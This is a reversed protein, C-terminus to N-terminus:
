ESDTAAAFAAKKRLRESLEKELADTDVPATTGARRVTSTDDPTADARASTQMLAKLEDARELILRGQKAKSSEILFTGYSFLARILNPLEGMKELMAISEKFCQISSDLREKAEQSDDYLSNSLVKAKNLLGMAIALRNEIAYSMDLAAETYEIAKKQIGFKLEVQGLMLLSFAELRRIGTDRATQLGDLCLAYADDRLGEEMRHEAINLILLARSGRDGLEDALRLAREWLRLAEESEGNEYRTAGLGLLTLLQGRRDNEQERMGLAEQHLRVAARLNGSSFHVNALRTLTRAIGRPDDLNRRIRLAKELVLRADDYASPAGQHRIIRAKEDLTDAFGREDGIESFLKESYLVHRQSREYQGRSRLTTALLLHSRAVRFEDDLVTAYHIADQLLKEAEELEGIELYIAALNMLLNSALEAADPSVLSLGRRYLQVAKQPQSLNYAAQGAELYRTAAGLEDGGRELYGALRQTWASRDIATTRGFWQAALRNWRNARKMEIDGLTYQYILPNAFKLSYRHIEISEGEPFDFFGAELLSDIMKEVQIRTSDELLNGDQIEPAEDARILSVVSDPWFSEGSIAAAELVRRERETLTGVRERAMQMMDNPLADSEFHEAHYTWHIPADSKTRENAAIAGRQIMIRVLEEAKEPMGQAQEVISDIVEKPLDEVNKLLSEVLRTIESEVLPSLHLGRASDPGMLMLTERPEDRSIRIVCVPMSEMVEILHFVTEVDAHRVATDWGDVILILPKRRADFALLNFATRIARHRKSARLTDREAYDAGNDSQKNGVLGMATALLQAAADIKNPPLLGNLQLALHDLRAEASQDSMQDIAFREQLIHSLLPRGSSDSLDIRYLTHPKGSNALLSVLERALTTKGVGESGTVTFTILREQTAADTVANYLSELAERRGVFCWRGARGTRELTHIGTTVRSATRGSKSNM